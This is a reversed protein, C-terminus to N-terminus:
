SKESPPARGGISGRWRASLIAVCLLAILCGQAAMFFGLPFAMVDVANLSQSLRPVAFTFLAWGM